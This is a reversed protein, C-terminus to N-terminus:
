KEKSDLIPKSNYYDPPFGNIQRWLEYWIPVDNMLAMCKAGVGIRLEKPWPKYTTDPVVLVRYKGNDSIFNDIATVRGSFTGVSIKPWGSFVLAPWGDFLFRVDQQKNILPLNMPDVYMEVALDYKAPMISILAEGEKISEGLGTKVAKTIYGNQPSTVYYMGSRVSYNMYQNQLKTVIAEADYMSSMSAYKESEAKGLKDRYENDIAGLEIKANILENRSTLLKNESSILKAYTEQLKLKRVEFETLSKLGDKYLKEMRKFQEEAVAYNTKSAEFDASDSAIKLLAQQYKNRTQELKLLRSQFLADIQSDLSKIKEAYSSVAMEKAKIQQDTNQLLNPDFYDDKIESLFLITDGKKVYDGEKVFWKEIRGPIISHITQPRQDPHLATVNGKEFINQTWPLFLFLFLFLSLFRIARGIKRTLSTSTVEQFSEYSDEKLGKLKSDSINLM